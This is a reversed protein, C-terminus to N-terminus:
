QNGWAAEHLVTDWQSTWAVTHLVTDRKDAWRRPTSLTKQNTREVGRRPPEVGRIPYTPIVLLAKWVVISGYYAVSWHVSSEPRYGRWRFTSWFMRRIRWQATWRCFVVYRCVSHLAVSSPKSSASYSARGAISRRPNHSHPHSHSPSRGFFFLFLTRRWNYSQSNLRHAVQIDDAWYTRNNSRKAASRQWWPVWEVRHNYSRISDHTRHTTMTPPRRELTSVTSKMIKRPQTSTCITYQQVLSHTTSTRYLSQSTSRLVDNFQTPRRNRQQKKNSQGESNQRSLETQLRRRTAFSV